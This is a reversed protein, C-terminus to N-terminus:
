LTLDYRQRVVPTGWNPEPQEEVLSFGASRYLHAAAPLNSATWLFVSAAGRERCYGLAVDLLRRGIGQGRCEPDILFYRLQATGERPWGIAISGVLRDGTEALWIADAAPDGAHVFVGLSEAVYAEFNVSWGYERAYLEGHMAIIRGIDGPRLTTRIEVRASDTAM